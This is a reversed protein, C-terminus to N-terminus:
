VIVDNRVQSIFVHQFTRKKHLISSWEMNNRPHFIEQECRKTLIAHQLLVGMMRPRGPGWVEIRTILPQPTVQLRLDVENPISLSLMRRCNRMTVVSICYLATRLMASSLLFQQHIVTSM